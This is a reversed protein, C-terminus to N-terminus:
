FAVDEEAPPLNALGCAISLWSLIRGFQQKSMGRPWQGARHFNSCSAVFLWSSAIVLESLKHNCNPGVLFARWGTDGLDKAAVRFLESMLVFAAALGILVGLLVAFKAQKYTLKKM